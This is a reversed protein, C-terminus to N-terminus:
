MESGLYAAIVAEDQQIEAPTGDAIVRGAALVTVRDAVSMILRMNHDVLLVGIGAARIAHLLARLELIDSPNMGAGPEDLLLLQPASALARAIELRRQEVLTLEAPVVSARGAMGVFALMEVARTRAWRERGPAGILSVADEWWRRDMRAHAGVMINELVSLGRFLRVQQFNRAIGMRLIQDARRGAYSTGRFALRGANPLTVGSIINFLTTKGAGNPGILAHIADEAVTCGVDSLAEYGGFRKTIGDVELLV